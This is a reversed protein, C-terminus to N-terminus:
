DLREQGPVKSLPEDHQACQRDGAQSKSGEPVDAIRPSTRAHQEPRRGRPRPPMRQSARRLRCSLRLRSAAAGHPGVRAPGAHLRVGAARVGASCLERRGWCFRTSFPRSRIPIPRPSRSANRSDTVRWGSNATVCPSIPKPATCSLLEGLHRDTRGRFGDHAARRRDTARFGVGHNRRPQRVPRRPRLRRSPDLGTVYFVADIKHSGADGIFGGPNM